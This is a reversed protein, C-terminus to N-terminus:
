SIQPQIPFSGRSPAAESDLLANIDLVVLLSGGWPVVSRFAGGAGGKLARPLVFRATQEALGSVVSLCADVELAWRQGAAEVVILAQREAAATDAVPPLNWLARLSVVPIGSPETPLVLRGTEWMPAAPDSPRVPADARRMLREVVGIPCAYPEADVLLILYPQQELVGSLSEGAEVPSSLSPSM